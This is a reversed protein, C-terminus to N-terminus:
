KSVHLQVSSWIKAETYPIPIGLIFILLIKSSPSYTPKECALVEIFFMSIQGSFM